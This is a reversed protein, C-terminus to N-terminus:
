QDFYIPNTILAPLLPLGPLFARLLEVRAFGPAQVNYEGEYSGNAPAEFLNESGQGTVVRLVDGRLLGSVEIKLQRGQSWPLSDGM